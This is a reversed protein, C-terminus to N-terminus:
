RYAFVQNHQLGLELSGDNRVKKAVQPKVCLKGQAGLADKHHVLAAELNRHVLFRPCLELFNAIELRAYALGSQQGDLRHAVPVQPLEVHQLLSESLVTASGFTPHSGVKGQWAVSPLVLRRGITAVGYCM